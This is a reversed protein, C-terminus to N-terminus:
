SNENKLSEYVSRVIFLLMILLFVFFYISLCEMIRFAATPPSAVTGMSPQKPVMCLCGVWLAVDFLSVLICFCICVLNGHSSKKQDTLYRIEVKADTTETGNQTLRTIEDRIRREQDSAPVLMGLMLASYISVATIITSIQTESLNFGWLLPALAVLPMFHATFTVYLEMSRYQDRLLRLIVNDLFRLAKM